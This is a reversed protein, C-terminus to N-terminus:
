LIPYEEKRKEPTLEPEYQNNRIFIRIKLLGEKGLAFLEEVLRVYKDYHYANVKQWKIEDIIGLENRISEMRRLVKDRHESQVLIGGYFNSYYTGHKDSEDLWIHIM